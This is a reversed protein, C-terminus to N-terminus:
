LATERGIDVEVIRPQAPGDGCAGKHRAPPRVFMELEGGAVLPEVGLSRGIRGLRGLDPGLRGAAAVGAGIARLSPRDHRRAGVDVEGAM